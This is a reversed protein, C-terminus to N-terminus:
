HIQEQANKTTEICLDEFQKVMEEMKNGYDLNKRQQILIKDRARYVDFLFRILDYNNIICSKIDEIQELLMKDLKDTQVVNRAVEAIQESLFPQCVRMDECVGTKLPVTLQRCYKFLVDIISIRDDPQM